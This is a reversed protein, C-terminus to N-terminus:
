AMEVIAQRARELFDPRSESENLKIPEGFWVTCTIPVPLFQGKPMSRHLNELYVPILEVNPFQKALLFLGGKFAEPLRQASRTGEPFIILSHGQKLAAIVPALPNGLAEGRKRDILVARLVKEAIYKRLFNRGWYDKAAVPCTIDRLDRPLASWLAITDIHSTHNAFYIRQRKEPACGTWRGAAGVLLWVVSLLLPKILIDYFRM